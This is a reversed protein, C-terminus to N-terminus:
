VNYGESKPHPYANTGRRRLMLKFSVSSLNFMQLPYIQGDLRNKWYVQIDIARIPVKSRQFSCMRYEATPAYQIYQRYDSASENVLAVDTVIPQFAAQNSSLLGLNSQGFRVPDGSQENVLPLLSSTFVISECPNWLSSTSPYDQSIVWYTAAGGAPAPPSTVSILNQYLASYIIIENILGGPLNVYLNQFNSFLGFMNSNFYLQYSEDAVSTISSRDAGGFGYRDAYLSFLNSTPNYLMQCPKTGMTPVPGAGPLGAYWIAFQSQINAQAAAFAADVLDLWHSYTYCWYYRTTVDQGTQCTSPLPVPAQVIDLTEPQWIINETATFTNTQFGAGVFYNVTAKLSVSYCTLNVNNTPNDSGTLITPIFLPLDKNPGNLTFRVISFNYKSADNIIPIDRTETFRIQPDSTTQTSNGNVISANYYVLDPDQEDDFTPSFEFSSTYIRSM